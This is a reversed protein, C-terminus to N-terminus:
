TNKNKIFERLIKTIVKGGAKLGEKAYKRMLDICEKSTDVFEVKPESM